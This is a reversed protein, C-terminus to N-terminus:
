GEGHGRRARMEALLREAFQRSDPAIAYRAVRAVSGGFGPVHILESQLEVGRRRLEAATSHAVHDGVDELERTTAPGRLLAALVREIKAPQRASIIRM